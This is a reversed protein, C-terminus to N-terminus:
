RKHRRRLFAAGGVLLMAGAPILAATGGGTRPTPRTTGPDTAGNGDAPGAGVVIIATDSIPTATGGYDVYVTIEATGTGEARIVAKSEALMDTVSSSVRSVRAITDNTSRWKIDTLRANTPYVDAVLTFTDGVRVNDIRNSSLILRQVNVVDIPDPLDTRVNVTITDTISNDDDSIVTIRVTGTRIAVLIFDSSASGTAISDDSSEWSVGPNSANTPTVVARLIASEGPKLNMSPPTPSGPVQPTYDWPGRPSYDVIISVGTVPVQAYVASSSFIFLALLLVVLCFRLRKM